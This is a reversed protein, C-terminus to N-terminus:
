ELTRVFEHNPLDWNVGGWHGSVCAAGILMMNPSIGFSRWEPSFGAQHKLMAIERDPKGYMYGNLKHLFPIPANVEFENQSFKKEVWQPFAFMKLTTAAPEPNIFFKWFSNGFCYSSMDIFGHFNSSFKGLYWKDKKDAVFKVDDTM